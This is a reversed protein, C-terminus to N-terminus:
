SWVSLWELVGGSLKTCAPHGKQRGVLLMLASFALLAHMSQSYIMNTPCCIIAASLKMLNPRTTKSYGSISIATVLNFITINDTPHTYIRRAKLAKVSNTPRCSPRGAHLFSLTSTSAHNDTQLSTCVQMYGLQHWQWESDRAETFGLNAKGKQYQGV